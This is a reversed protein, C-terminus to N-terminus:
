RPLAKAPRTPCNASSRAPRCPCRGCRRTGPTATSPIRSCGSADRRHVACRRRRGGIHQYVIEPQVATGPCTSGPATTTPSGPWCSRDHRGRSRGSLRAAVTPLAARRRGRGPAPRRVAAGAVVGFEDGATDDFWWLQTATPRCRPTYPATPGIPRRVTHVDGTVDWCYVEYRGTANSVYRRPAPLTGPGPRCASGCPPSGKAGASNPWRTTSCRPRSRPWRIVTTRRGSSGAPDTGTARFAMLADQRTGSPPRRGTLRAAGPGAGGRGPSAAPGRRGGPRADASRERGALGLALPEGGIPVAVGRVDSHREHDSMAFGEGRIRHLERLLGTPSGLTSPRPSRCAPRHHCRAAGSRGRTTGRDGQRRRNDHLMARDGINPVRADMPPRSSVWLYRIGNGDLTALLSVPVDASTLRAM